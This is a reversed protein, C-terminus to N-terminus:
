TWTRKQRRLSVWKLLEGINEGADDIEGEKSFIEMLVCVHHLKEWRLVVLVFFQVM